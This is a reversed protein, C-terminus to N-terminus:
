IRALFYMFYNRRLKKYCKRSFCSAGTNEKKRLRQLSFDMQGIKTTVKYSAFPFTGDVAELWFSAFNMRKSTKEGSIVHNEDSNLVASIVIDWAFHLRSTWLGKHSSEGNQANKGSGSTPAEKLISALRQKDKRNLPDESHWVKSPLKLFHFKSRVILWVAIGEPTRSLGSSHLKDVVIQAYETRTSRSALDQVAQYVIWGCEERLWSKAKGLSCLLELLHEWYEISM